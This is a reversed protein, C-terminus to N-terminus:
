SDSESNHATDFSADYSVNIPKGGSTIDEKDKMDHNAALVLKAIIPNYEGSLGKDLLRRKQEQNIQKLTDSFLSHKNAWEYLTDRHVGLFIAFGEVTPLSVQLRESHMEVGEDSGTMTKKLKLFKIYRDQCQQLYEVGKGCFSERYKTPQGAKM